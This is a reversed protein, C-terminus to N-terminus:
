AAAASQASAARKMPWAVPHSEDLIRKPLVARAGMMPRNVLQNIRIDVAISAIAYATPRDVQALGVIIELMARLAEEAAAEVTPAAGFTMLADPTELLPASRPAGKEIDFGLRVTLECELATVCVEGDGQAAHGDGCSFLAGPVLVPLRLVTGAVADRCDLNGGYPGPPVTSRTEGPPAVGMVGLFPAVEVCVGPALTATMSSRDIPFTRLWPEFDTLLGAGPRMMTFGWDATTVDVIRVVLTDGVEAGEVAIPGSLAHLRNRDFTLLDDTSSGPGFQGDDGTRTEIQVEDGPQVVLVPPRAADWGYHIHRDTVRDLRHLTM